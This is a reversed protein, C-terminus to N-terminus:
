QLHPNEARFREAWRASLEDRLISLRVRSYPDYDGPMELGMMGCVEAVHSEPEACIDEYYLIPADKGLRGALQEYQTERLAIRRVQEAIAAGDYDDETLASGQPQRSHMQGSLTGKLGSIAQAVRDRRRLLIFQAREIIESLFGLDAAAALVTYGAKFGFAHATGRNDIMWQAAQRVDRLRYRDRIKVLQHPAFSEGIENFWGTGCLLQGFFNSGARSAFLVVLIKQPAEFGGHRDLALADTVDRIDDAPFFSELLELLEERSRPRTARM